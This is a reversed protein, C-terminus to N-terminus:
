HLPLTLAQLVFSDDLNQVVGVLNLDAMKWEPDIMIQQVIDTEGDIDLDFPGLWDRVLNQHHFTHGENDGGAALSILDDETIALYLKSFARNDDGSVAVQVSMRLMNDQMNAQLSINAEPAIKNLTNVMRPINERWNHVVEGSVVFEPTFISQLLNLQALERQRDAFREKGFPDIWGKKDNLYDIHFGLIILNEDDLGQEPLQKVWKDAAPCLGCGEATFLEILAMQHEGNEASWSMKTDSNSGGCAVLTISVLMLGFWKMIYHM